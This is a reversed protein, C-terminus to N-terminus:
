LNQQPPIVSRNHSKSIACSNPETNSNLSAAPEQKQLIRPHNGTLALTAKVTSRLSRATRIASNLKSTGTNIISTTKCNETSASSPQLSRCNSLNEPSKRRQCSSHTSAPRPERHSRTAITYIPKNSAHLAALSARNFHDLTQEM